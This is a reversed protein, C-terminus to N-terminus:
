GKVTHKKLLEELQDAKERNANFLDNVEWRDDPKVFLKPRRTEGEPQKTPLLFAWEDTRISAEAAEDLVLQSIAFERGTTAEGRIIPQLNVAGAALSTDAVGFQGLLTAYIDQPQTFDTIRRCAQDGNPLRVVLPLHVQEEYLWPRYPGIQGHEGLPFGFDSTVFWTSDRDLGCERLQEFVVGLEGDIGTVNAALSWYLWERTDPDDLNFLGTPPDRWPTAPEEDEDLVDAAFEESEEPETEEDDEECAYEIEEGDEESIQDEPEARPDEDEEPDSRKMPDPEDEDEVYAEFVEQRVTWPPLFSDVDVWLLFSPRAALRDLVAPLARILATLAYPDEEQARADFVEGWAAYFWDPADNEPHNARVLVTLVGAKKLEHIL